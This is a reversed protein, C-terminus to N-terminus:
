NNFISINVTKHLYYFSKSKSDKEMTINFSHFFINLLNIPTDSIAENGKVSYAFFADLPFEGKCLLTSKSSDVFKLSFKTIADGKCHFCYFDNSYSNGSLKFRIEINNGYPYKKIPTSIIRTIIIYAYMQNTLLNELIKNINM